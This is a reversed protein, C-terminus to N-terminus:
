PHKSTAPASIASCPIGQVAYETVDKFDYRWWEEPYVFFCGDQENTKRPLDRHPNGFTTRMMCVFSQSKSLPLGVMGLNINCLTKEILAKNPPRGPM